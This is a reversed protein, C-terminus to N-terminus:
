SLPIHPLLKRAKTRVSSLEHLETTSKKYRPSIHVGARSVRGVRPLGSTPSTHADEASERADRSGPGRGVDLLMQELLADMGAKLASMTEIRKEMVSHAKRKSISLKERLSSTEHSHKRQKEEVKGQLEALKELLVSENIQLESVAHRTASVTDEAIEKAKVAERYAVRMNEFEEQNDNMRDEIMENDRLMREITNELAVIVAGSSKRENEITAGLTNMKDRFEQLLLEQKEFAETKEKLKTRLIRVEESTPAAAAEEELEEEARAEEAAEVAKGEADEGEEAAEGAAKRVLHGRTVAQIKTIKEVDEANFTDLAPLEEGEGEAAAAVEPLAQPPSLTPEEFDDDGYEDEEGSAATAAASPAEAPAEAEDEDDVEKGKEEEEEAEAEPEAAPEAALEPAPTVSGSADALVEELTDDLLEDVAMDGLVSPSPTIEIPTAGATGAADSAAEPAEPEAPPDDDPEAAGAESVAQSVAESVAASDGPPESASDYGVRFGAVGGEEGGDAAKPPASTVEEDGAEEAEPFLDGDDMIGSIEDVLDDLVKDAFEMSRRLDEEGADPEGAGAPGAAASM